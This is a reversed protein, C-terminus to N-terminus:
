LEGIGGAVSLYIGGRARGHEGDAYLLLGARRRRRRGEGNLHRGTRRVLRGTLANTLPLRLAPLPLRAACYAAAALLPPASRPLRSCRRPLLCATFPLCASSTRLASAPARCLCRCACCARSSAPLRAHLLCAAAAACCHLPLALHCARSARLLRLLSALRARLPAAATCHHLLFPAHCAAASPLPLSPPLSPLLPLCAAAPTPVAIRCRRLCAGVNVLHDAVDVGRGDSFHTSPSVRRRFDVARHRQRLDRRYTTTCVGRRFSSIRVNGTTRWRGAV